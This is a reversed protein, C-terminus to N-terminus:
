KESHKDSVTLRCARPRCCIAYKRGLLRLVALTSKLGLAGATMSLIEMAGIRLRGIESLPRGFETPLALSKCIPKLLNATRHRKFICSSKVILSIDRHYYRLLGGLRLIASM